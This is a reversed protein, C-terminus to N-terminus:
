MEYKRITPETWDLYGDIKSNFISLKWSACQGVYQTWPLFTTSEIKAGVEAAQIIIVQRWSEATLICDDAVEIKQWSYQFSKVLSFLGSISLPSPSQDGRYTAFAKNFM